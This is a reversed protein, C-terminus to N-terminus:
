LLHMYHFLRNVTTKLSTQLLNNFVSHVIIESLTTQLQVSLTCHKRSVNLISMKFVLSHKAITTKFVIYYYSQLVHTMSLAQRQEGGDRQVEADATRTCSAKLRSTHEASETQTYDEEHFYFYSM